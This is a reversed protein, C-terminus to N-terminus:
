DGRFRAALETRSRLGLKRYIKSLNWEVTKRSLQLARAVEANTTGEAVLEAIRAETESLDTGSPTSRGGIRRLEKRARELWIRAGLGELVLVARQLTSRADAKRRRLRQVTGLALLARGLPLPWGNDEAFAVAKVAAAEAGFLDGEAALILGRCHMAAALAWDRGLAEAREEFPGLLSRAEAMRGLAALVEVAEPVHVVPRETGMSGTQPNAPDLYSWSAEYNGRSSELYGLVLRSGRLFGSSQGALDLSHECLETALDVNGRLAEIWGLRLLAYMEAHLRGGQAAVDAAERALAAARDLNGACLEVFALRELPYTLASDDQTRAREVLCEFVSRAPDLDWVELLIQAYEATASGDGPAAGSAEELAVARLMLEEPVEGSQIYRMQGLLALAQSLVCPDGAREATKVAEVAYEMGADWDLPWVAPALSVLVETRLRADDGTCDLAQRLVAASKTQDTEFAIKGLQLLIEARGGDGATRELAEDLVLEARTVDGSAYLLDAAALSRAHLSPDALQTVALALEALEAASAIAGRGRAVRIADDLKAAVDESPGTAALALHRAREEVDLDATALRAHVLRRTSTSASTYHVSALLPHTFRIVGPGEEVIEAAEAEALAADAGTVVQELLERTPWALAAAVLLLQRTPTSMAALRARLLESLERPVLLRDNESLSRALESAFFPNGESLEHLRLLTPRALSLGFRERVLEYLAAVTLPGLDRRDTLERPLADLLDGIVVGRETRVTALLGVRDDAFRRLAFALTARSSADLWQADDVAILLPKSRSLIRLAGVFAAPVADSDLGKSGSEERLLAVAFARRQPPPLESLVDLAADGVLDRLATFAVRM